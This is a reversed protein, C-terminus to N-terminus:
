LAVIGEGGVAGPVTVTGVQTLSGDSNVRFANVNGDKGTQVYLYRGDSSAAADVTGADTATTGLAKVTGIGTDRYGSLTGSGTNSAYLWPGTKVIWCTAAQGTAIQQIQTATGTRSLTYAAVANPGAQAVVMRGGDDFTFGFPATGDETTTVPKASPGLPGVAFVKIAHGNGKTTVVLHDGDPTFGVQGPTTTFQPTAAPDLDLRRKWSPVRLIRDGIRRYGQISGGDLANLVYVLNGHVTVSAPFRGGSSVVQTRTLRDGHVTFVTVTDSGANVAYLLGHQQDYTLSGQSALHDVVSGDLVGGLGGTAYTGAQTLSGDSGRDYAVVTNGQPDDTQVFVPHADGSRASASAPAALAAAATVAVGVLSLARVTTKM